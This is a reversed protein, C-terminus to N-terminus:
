SLLDIDCFTAQRRNHLIIAFIGILGAELLFTALINASGEHLPALAYTTLGYHFKAEDPALYESTVYGINGTAPLLAKLEDFRAEYRSIQDQYKLGTEFLSPVEPLTKFMRKEPFPVELLIRIWFQSVFLLLFLIGLRSLQKYARKFYLIGATLFFGQLILIALNVSIDSIKGDGAVLMELVFKNGVIGIFLCFIGILSSHKYKEIHAIKMM